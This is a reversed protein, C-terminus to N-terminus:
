VPVDRLRGPETQSTKVVGAQRAAPGGVSQRRDRGRGLGARDRFSSCLCRPFRSRRSVLRRGRGHGARAGVSSSLRWRRRPRLGVAWCSRGDPLHFAVGAAAAPWSASAVGGRPLSGCRWRPEGDVLELSCGRGVRRAFAASLVPESLDLSSVFRLDGLRIEGRRQTPKCPARGM